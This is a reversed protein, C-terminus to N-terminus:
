PKESSEASKESHEAPKPAQAGTGPQAKPKTQYEPKNYFKMVEGLSKGEQKGMFNWWYWVGGGVIALLPVLIFVAAKASLPKNM